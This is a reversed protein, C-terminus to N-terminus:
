YGTDLNQSSTEPTETLSECASLDIYSELTDKHHGAQQFAAEGITELSSNLIIYLKTIGSPLNNVTPGGCFAQKSISTVTYTAGDIEYADNPYVIGVGSTLAYTASFGDISMTNTASDLTYKFDAINNPALHQV